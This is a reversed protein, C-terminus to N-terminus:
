LPWWLFYGSASEGEASWLWQRAQGQMHLGSVRLYGPWWTQAHSWRVQFAQPRRNLSRMTSASNLLVNGAILYVVYLVGLAILCRRLFTAPASRKTTPESSM